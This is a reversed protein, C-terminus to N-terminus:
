IKLMKVHGKKKKEKIIAYYLIANHTYLFNHVNFIKNSVSKGTIERFYM